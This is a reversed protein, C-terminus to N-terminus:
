SNCFMFEDACPQKQAHPKVKKELSCCDRKDIEQTWCCARSYSYGQEQEQEHEHEHTWEMVKVRGYTAANFLWFFALRKM